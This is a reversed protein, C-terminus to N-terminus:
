KRELLAALPKQIWRLRLALVIILVGAAILPATYNGQLSFLDGKIALLYHVIALVGALYTLRHLRKWWRGMTRRWIRFSTAALLLLVILAVLGFIIFTKQSIELWVSRLDFGYDWGAYVLFHAAAYLAAYLGLPKRLRGILPVIFIRHIPTSALSLLLFVIATRGTWQLIREVPNFGLEGRIYAGILLIGPLIGAVHVLVKLQYQMSERRRDENPQGM